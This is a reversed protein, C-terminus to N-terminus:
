HAKPLEKWNTTYAPSLMERRMSWAGGATDRALRVAGRGQKANIVDIVRMLEDSGQRPKPAFLDGTISGREVFQSLVVGAKAYAPGERYLSRLGALAAQAIDRTDSSPFPLAIIRAGSYPESKTFPSTRAFVQVCNALSAQARLKGAATTSFATVAGELQELSFVEEGFSRSCIIQQKREPSGDVFPFCAIGRLERATREVNVNFYRRLLKPDATALQWATHINLEGQLKASLARGIGWVESVPAYKLLKEQRVPDRLDVVCGTKAKWKKAAWNALKSLTKTPGIGVGVGMGLRRQIEDRAHRGWEEPDPVGGLDAFCEDIYLFSTM